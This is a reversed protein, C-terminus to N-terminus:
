YVIFDKFEEGYKDLYFKKFAREYLFAKDQHSPLPNKVLENTVYTQVEKHIGFDYAKFLIAEIQKGDNGLMECKKNKNLLM